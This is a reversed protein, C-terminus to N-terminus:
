KIKILFEKWLDEIFEKAQDFTDFSKHDFPSDNGTVPFYTHASFIVRELIVLRNVWGILLGNKYLQRAWRGISDPEKNDSYRCHWGNILPQKM